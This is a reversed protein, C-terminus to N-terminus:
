CVRLAGFIKLPQISKFVPMAFHFMLSMKPMDVWHLLCHPSPAQYRINQADDVYKVDIDGGLLLSGADCIQRLRVIGDKGPLQRGAPIIQECGNGFQLVLESLSYVAFDITAPSAVLCSAVHCRIRNVRGLVTLGDVATRIPGVIVTAFALVRRLSPQLM